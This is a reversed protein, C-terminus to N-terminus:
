KNQKNMEELKSNIRENMEDLPSQQCICSEIVKDFGSINEYGSPFKSEAFEYSRYFSNYRVKSWDIQDTDIINFNLEKPLIGKELLKNMERIQNNM